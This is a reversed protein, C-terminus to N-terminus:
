ISDASPYRPLTSSNPFISQLRILLMSGADFNLHNSDTEFLGENVVCLPVNRGSTIPLGDDRHLHEISGRQDHPSRQKTEGVLLASNLGRAAPLRSSIVVEVCSRTPFTYRDGFNEPTVRMRRKGSNRERLAPLVHGANTVRLLHHDGLRYHEIQCRRDRPLRRKQKELPLRM